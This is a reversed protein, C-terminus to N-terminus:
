GNSARKLTPGQPHKGKEQEIRRNMIREFAEKKHKARAYKDPKGKDNGSEHVAHTQVLYQNRGLLLTQQARPLSHFGGPPLKFEAEIEM